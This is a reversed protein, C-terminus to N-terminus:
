GLATALAAPAAVVALLVLAGLRRYLRVARQIKRYGEEGLVEAEVELRMYAAEREAMSALAEGAAAKVLSVVAGHDLREGVISYGRGAGMGTARHTDTTVVEVFDFRQSLEERIRRYLSSDMNNGDVVVLLGLRGDCEVAIASIGAPGIEVGQPDVSAASAHGVGIRGRACAPAGSARDLAERLSAVDEESWRVAGDFRNQADVLVMSTGVRRAVHLPIDDSASSVRSVIALHPEVGLSFATVRVDGVVAETPRLYSPRGPPPPSLLARHLAARVAEVAEGDVPDREHSGVGHLFVMRFGAAEAAEKLRDVLMGGGVHKFPGPHFESVVVVDRGLFYLHLPVRERRGLRRLAAELGNGGAFASSVFASFMCLGDMGVMRSALPRLSYVLGVSAASAAALPLRGAALYVGAALALPLVFHPQRCRLALLVSSTMSAGVLLYTLPRRGSALDLLATAAAAAAATYLARKHTMLQRDSMLVLFFFSAFVAVYSAVAAPSLILVAATAAALSAAIARRIPRGFLAWYGREFARM